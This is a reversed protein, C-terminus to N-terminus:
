TRAAQGQSRERVARTGRMGRLKAPGSTTDSALTPCQEPLTALKFPRYAYWPDRCSAYCGNM